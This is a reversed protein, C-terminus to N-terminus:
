KPPIKPLLGETSKVDLFKRLMGLVEECCEEPTTATKRVEAAWRKWARAASSGVLLELKEYTYDRVFANWKGPAGYVDLGHATFVHELLYDDLVHRQHELVARYLEPLPETSTIWFTTRESGETASAKALRACVLLRLLEFISRELYKLPHKEWAIQTAWACWARTMEYSTGQRLKHFYERRLEATVEPRKTFVNLGGPALLLALMFAEFVRQQDVNLRFYADYVDIETWHLGPPSAPVSKETSVKTLM